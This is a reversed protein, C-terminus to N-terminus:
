VHARGIERKKCGGPRRPDAEGWEAAAAGSAGMEERGEGGARAERGSGTLGARSCM